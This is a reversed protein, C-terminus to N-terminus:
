KLFLFEVKEPEIKSIEVFAPYKKIEVKMKKSKTSIAKSIDAVVSFMEPKVEKYKDLSVLYTINVKEPFTRVTYNNFNNIITIPIEVNAETYKEVPIVLNVSNPSIKMNCKSYRNDYNLQLSQTQTLNTLNKYITQIFTVSDIDPKLGSITVSDPIIKVSGNLKFQKAFELNLKTRVPVRKSYIKEFHFYLTDPIVSVVNNSYNIQNGISQYLDSTAIFYEWKSNKKKRLCPAVDISINQPKSFINNSLIRFGKSKLKVTFVSDLESVIAKGSPINTFTVPYKAVEIYDASLKILIWTFASFLFCIIFVYVKKSFGFTKRKKEQDPKSQIDMLINFPLKKLVHRFM